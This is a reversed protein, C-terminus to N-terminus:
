LRDKNKLRELLIIGDQIVMSEKYKLKIDKLSKIRKFTKMKEKFKPNDKNLIIYRLPTVTWFHCIDIKEGMERMCDGVLKDEFLENMIKPLSQSYQNHIYNIGKLSIYYGSNGNYYPGCYPVENVLNKYINNYKDETNSLRGIYNYKKILSMNDRLKKLNVIVDDDFKFVGDFKKFHINKMSFFTRIVKKPFNSYDDRAKIILENNNILYPESMRHNGYVIYYTYGYKELDNLWSKRLLPIREDLYKKCTFILFIVRNKIKENKKIIGM